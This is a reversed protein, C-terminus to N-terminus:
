HYDHQILSLAAVAVVFEFHVLPGVGAFRLGLIVEAMQQPLRVFHALMLESLPSKPSSFYSISACLTEAVANKAPKTESVGNLTAM